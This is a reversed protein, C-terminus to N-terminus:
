CRIRAMTVLTRWMAAMLGGGNGVVFAATLMLLIITDAFLMLALPLAAANGLGHHCATCWIATIRIPLM